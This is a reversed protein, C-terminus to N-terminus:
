DNAAQGNLTKKMEELDSLICDFKPKMHKNYHAEVMRKIKEEQEASLKPEIVQEM